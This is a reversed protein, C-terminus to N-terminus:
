FKKKSDIIKGIYIRNNSCVGADSQLYRKQTSEITKDQYESTQIANM